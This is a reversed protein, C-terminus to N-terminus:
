GDLDFHIFGLQYPAAASAMYRSLHGTFLSRTDNCSSYWGGSFFLVLVYCLCVYVVYRLM